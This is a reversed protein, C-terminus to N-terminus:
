WIDFYWFLWSGSSSIAC